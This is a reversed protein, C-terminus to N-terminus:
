PTGRSMLEGEHATPVSRQDLGGRKEPRADLSVEVAAMRIRETGPMEECRVLM